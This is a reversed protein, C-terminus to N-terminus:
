NKTFGRSYVHTNQTRLQYSDGSRAELSRLAEHIEERLAHMAEMQDKHHAEVVALITAVAVDAVGPPSLGFFMELQCKLRLPLKVRRWESGCRCAARLSGVDTYGEERLYRAHQELDEDSLFPTACRLAAAVPAGDEAAADDGAGEAAESPM